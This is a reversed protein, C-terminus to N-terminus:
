RRVQELWERQRNVEPINTTNHSVNMSSTHRILLNFPTYGTSTNIWSNHMYQMLPLLNIWNDQETNGYICLYQEVHTNAWESQGNTQPHYATSINQKINLQACIAKAFAAM